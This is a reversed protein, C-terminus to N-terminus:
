PFVTSDKEITLAGAVNIARAHERHGLRLNWYIGDHMNPDPQIHSLYLMMVVQDTRVGRTARHQLMKQFEKRGRASKNTEVDEPFMIARDLLEIFLVHCFNFWNEFIDFVATDIGNAKSLQILEAHLAGVSLARSVEEVMSGDHGCLHSVVVADAAQLVAYGGSNKDLGSHVIWDCYLKLTPYTRALDGKELILRALRLIEIFESHRVSGEKKLSEVHRALRAAPDYNM